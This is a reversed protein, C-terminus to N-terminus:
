SAMTWFRECACPRSERQRRDERALRFFDFDSFNGPLSAVDGSTSRLTGNPAIVAITTLAPAYKAVEQKLEALFSADGETEVRRKVLEAALAVADLTGEADNQLAAALYSVQLGAADLADQRARQISLALLAALALPILGTFAATRRRLRELTM